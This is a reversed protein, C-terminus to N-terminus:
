CVFRGIGGVKAEEPRAHYFLSLVVCSIAYKNYTGHRSFVPGPNGVLDSM